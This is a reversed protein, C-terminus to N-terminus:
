KGQPIRTWTEPYELLAHLREELAYSNNIARRSQLVNVCVVAHYTRRIDQDWSTMVEITWIILQVIRAPSHLPPPLFVAFLFFFFFPFPFCQPPLNILRSASLVIDTQATKNHCTHSM